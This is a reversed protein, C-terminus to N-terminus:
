YVISVILNDIKLKDNDDNFKISNRMDLIKFLRDEIEKMQIKKVCEIIREITFEDNTNNHFIINKIM